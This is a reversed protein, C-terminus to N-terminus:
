LVLQIQIHMNQVSTFLTTALLKFSEQRSRTETERRCRLRGRRRIHKDGHGHLSYSLTFKEQNSSETRNTSSPGQGHCQGRDSAAERNTTMSFWDISEQRNQNTDHTLPGRSENEIKDLM